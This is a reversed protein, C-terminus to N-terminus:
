SLPLIQWSSSSIGPRRTPSPVFLGQDGTLDFTGTPHAFFLGWGETGILWPIPVRAGYTALDGRHQGNSMTDTTGRRNFPHGGEGMGYVPGDGLRFQVAGGQADFRLEQCMKGAADTIALRLPGEQVQITHAGWKVTRSGDPNKPQDLLETSERPVIGLESAPGLKSLPVVRVRLIKSSFAVLTLSGNAAGAESAPIPAFFGAASINRSFLLEALGIGMGGLVDRRSLGDNM